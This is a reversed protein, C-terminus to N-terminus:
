KATVIDGGVDVDVAVDDDECIWLVKEFWFLVFCFLGCFWGGDADVNLSSDGSDLFCGCGGLFCMLRELSAGKM